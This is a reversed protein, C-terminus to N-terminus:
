ASSVVCKESEGLAWGSIGQGQGSYNWQGTKKIMSYNLTFTNKKM